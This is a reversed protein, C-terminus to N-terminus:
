KASVSFDSYLFYCSHTSSLNLLNFQTLIDMNSAESKFLYNGTKNWFISPNRFGSRLISPNRPVWSGMSVLDRSYRLEGVPPEAYPIARYAFINRGNKTLLPTGSISGSPAEVIPVDVSNKPLIIRTTVLYVALSTTSFYALFSRNSSM